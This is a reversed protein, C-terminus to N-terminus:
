EERRPRRGLSERLSFTKGSKTMGRVEVDPAGSEAGSQASALLETLDIVQEEGPHGSMARVHLSVTLGADAEQPLSVAIRPLGEGGPEVRLHAQGASWRSLARACAQILDDNGGTLDRYTM